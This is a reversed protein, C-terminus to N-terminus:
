NRCSPHSWFRDIVWSRDTEALGRDTALSAARDGPGAPLQGAAPRDAGSLFTMLVIEISRSVPRVVGPLKPLISPPYDTSQRSIVRWRGIVWIPRDRGPLPGRWPPWVVPSREWGPGVSTSKSWGCTWWRSDTASRRWRHGSTRSRGPSRNVSLQSGCSRNVFSPDHHVCSRCVAGSCLDAAASDAVVSFRDAVVLEVEASVVVGSYCRGGGGGGM